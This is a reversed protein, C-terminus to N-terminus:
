SRGGVRLKHVLWGRELRSREDDTLEHHGKTALLHDLLTSAPVFWGDLRSLRRM